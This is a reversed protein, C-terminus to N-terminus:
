SREGLTQTVRLRRGATLEELLRKTEISPQYGDDLDDLLLALEHIAKRVAATNDM